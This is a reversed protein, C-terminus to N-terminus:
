DNITYIESIKNIKQVEFEKLSVFAEDVKKKCEGKQMETLMHPLFFVAAPIFAILAATVNESMIDKLNQQLFIPIEIEEEPSILAPSFFSNYITQYMRIIENEETVFREDISDHCMQLLKIIKEEIAKKNKNSRFNIIKIENDIVIYCDKKYDDIQEDVIFELDRPLSACIKKSFCSSIYKLLEEKGFQELIEGSILKGNVNCVEFINKKNIGSSVLAKKIGQISEKKKNKICHTLVIGIPFLESLESVIKLESDEIRDAGANICYLIAHYQERIGSKEKETINETINELWKEYEKPELGKTDTLRLVLEKSYNYSITEFLKKTQPEGSGTKCKTTDFLYNVLSSKGVGSKGITLVNLYAKKM